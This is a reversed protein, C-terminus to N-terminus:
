VPTAPPKTRCCVSFLTLSFFFPHPPRIRVCNKWQAVYAMQRQQTCAISYLLVASALFIEYWYQTRMPENPQYHIHKLVNVLQQLRSTQYRIVYADLQYAMVAPVPVKSPATLDRDEYCLLGLLEPEDM